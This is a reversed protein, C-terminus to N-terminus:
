AAANSWPFAQDWITDLRQLAEAISIARFYQGDQSVLGLRLLKALADDVEFDVDIETAARLLNEAACDLESETMGIDRPPRQLLAFAMIAERFEQEEAEDLLRFLVGANNDLNQYYLNRTLDAQYKDKTRLYGFFSRVGYGITGAILGLFALIGYAGAFAIAVAGRVIRYVTFALGSVTPLAIRARDMLTMRIRTGPLLMELDGRPIEKFMKITVSGPVTKQDTVGARLRFAVVLRQHVLASRSVRRFCTRWSRLERQILKEGRAFVELRDFIRFDVELNLGWESCVAFAEELEVRDLRRYNAATFLDVLDDFLVDAQDDVSPADPWALRVTDADPDFPAYLSKLRQLEEHYEHHFVSRLLRCLEAFSALDEESVLESAALLRALDEGRLPIFHERPPQRLPVPPSDPM